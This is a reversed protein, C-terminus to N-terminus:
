CHPESAQAKDPSGEISRPPGGVDRIRHPHRGHLQGGGESRTRMMRTFVAPVNVLSFPMVKWQFLGMPTTFATVEKTEETLAIQWYGKSLDIKTFFKNKNTSIGAFLDEINPMVEADTKTVSNLRRYDICFRHEGNKKRVIVVPASYPSKSPEIVGMQLMKQVEQGIIERTVYPVPYGKVHVPDKTILKAHCVELTSKGPKETLTGQFESCNEPQKKRPTTLSHAYNWM